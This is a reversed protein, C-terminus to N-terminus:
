FQKEIAFNLATASNKYVGVALSVRASYGMGIACHFSPVLMPSVQKAAYGPGNYGSVAGVLVDFNDALHYSYAAFVSQKRISNYYTGITWEGGLSAWTDAVGIYVGPNFNNWERHAIVDVRSSHVSGLMVGVRIPPRASNDLLGSSVEEAHLPKVCVCFVVFLAFVCLLFLAFGKATRCIFAWANVFLADM